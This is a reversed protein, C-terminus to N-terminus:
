KGLIAIYDQQGAFLARLQGGERVQRDADALVLDARLQRLRQDRLGRRDAARQGQLRGAGVAGLRVLGRRDGQLKPSLSHEMWKYACNPHKADAHMM